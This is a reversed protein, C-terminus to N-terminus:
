TKQTFTWLIEELRKKDQMAGERRKAHVSDHTDPSIHQIIIDKKHILKQLLLPFLPDKKRSETVGVEGQWEPFTEMEGPVVLWVEYLRSGEQALVEQKIMYGNRQLWLRLRCLHNQPQLVLWKLQHAVVSDEKLIAEIMLGGMGAIVVGDVMKEKLVSLGPGVLVEVKQSLGEKAIHIAARRAPGEHIDGAIGEKIKGEKILYIPIYAHDTGIDAMSKGAPVLDAVAKLRPTLKM